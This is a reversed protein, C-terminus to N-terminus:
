KDAKWWQYTAKLIRVKEFMEAITYSDTCILSCIDEVINKNYKAM